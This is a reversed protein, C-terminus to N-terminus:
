SGPTTWPPAGRVTDRRSKAPTAPRSTRNGASSCVRIKTRSSAARTGHAPRRDWVDAAPPDGGYGRRNPTGGCPCGQRPNLDLVEPPKSRTFSQFRRTWHTYTNLTKPSYNRMQIQDRM